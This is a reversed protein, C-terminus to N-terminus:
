SFCTRGCISPYHVKSRRRWSLYCISWVIVQRRKRRRVAIRPRKIRPKKVASGNIGSTQSASTPAAAQHEIGVGAETGRGEACSSAICRQWQM